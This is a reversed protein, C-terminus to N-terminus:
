AEAVSATFFHCSIWNRVSQTRLGWFLLVLLSQIPSVEQFPVIFNSPQGPSPERSAHHELVINNGQLVVLPQRHLPASGPRPRQTM